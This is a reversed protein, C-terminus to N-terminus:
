HTRFTIFMRSNRPSPWGLKKRLSHSALGKAWEHGNVVDLVYLLDEVVEMAEQLSIADPPMRGTHALKNRAAVIDDVKKFHGNLDPWFSLPTGRKRHLEPLYYKLLKRIPPSPAEELLWDVDPAIASISTKIATELGATMILFASRSSEQSITAAERLLTHGLPESMKPDNWLASVDKRDEDAYSFGLLCPGTFEQPGGPLPALYFKSQGTNWYLASHEILKSQADCNQQWRLLKLFRTLHGLLEDEVRNLQTEIDEPCQHRRPSFRESLYGDGDVYLNGNSLLPLKLSKPVRLLRRDQILANAFEVQDHSADISKSVKCKLGERHGDPDDEPDHAEITIRLDSGDDPHFVLRPKEAEKWGHFHMGSVQAELLYAIRAKIATM